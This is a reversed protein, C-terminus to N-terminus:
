NLVNQALPKKLIKGNKLQESKEKILDKKEM